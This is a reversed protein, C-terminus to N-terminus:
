RLLISTGKKLYIKGDAGMAELMWIVTQANQKANKFSGDWGNKTTQTEYYLEGWRNYVRFYRIQKIGYSVPRLVDNVGDGNPTFATPVYIAIDNVLKVQQTDITVCGTKTTISIKYEQEIVSKFVPNFSSANDLYTAPNWLISEGFNRAHLDLPLNIVGIEVPYRLATKPKEISVAKTFTHMPTPCQLTSVSLSIFYNGATSFTPGIPNALTSTQGNPFRWLYNITSGVTDATYNIIDVPLNICKPPVNFSAVANPYVTITDTITDACRSISSVVLEVIYIGPKTYTHNFHRTTATTGDGFSWNYQMAGVANSSYNTFIFQNGLLCQKKTNVTFSAEPVSAIVVNQKRTTLICTPGGFLMAYYEGTETVRYTTQNAGIIAVGDKYWQISDAPNVKLVASDGSGICYDARGLLQIANNVASVNVKVQDTKICGGGLSRATLTYITSTDPRALPNAANPNSLGEIPTWEYRVGLQPPAGIQVPENNCSTKDIGADAVVNLNNIVDAYLTDLCGYGNYPVLQVAVQTSTIPVPVFSLIQGTGLVQSFNTNFWTYSQYGYPAIVNVATDEPCFSAGEFRGSCETNVDIYAYGFHRRFTCDSTKFLLRITKGANGNLNITVASWNKYYIPTNSDIIPSLEFGPLPTGFPFFAFSSCQITTNDTVNTIEIEMRPQQYVQHNPDQFVVAYNYILNYENANSPITFTYSVGEAQAGGETNGLKISHGSGNPCNVPFSGYPDLANSQFSSMMTHRGDIPDSPSLSIVNQTGVAAVSGTYCIWGAFDGQEFDINPPCNQATAAHTTCVLVTIFIFQKTLYFSNIFCPKIHELLAFFMLSFILM